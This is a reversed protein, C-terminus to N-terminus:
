AKEWRLTLIRSPSEWKSPTMASHDANWGATRCRARPVDGRHQWAGPRHFLRRYQPRFTSSSAARGPARWAKASIMRCDRPSDTTCTVQITVLLFEGNSPHSHAGFGAEGAIGRARRITAFVQGWAAGSSRSRWRVLPHHVQHRRRRFERGPWGDDPRDAACV